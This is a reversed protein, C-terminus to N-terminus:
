NSYHLTGVTAALTWPKTCTPNEVGRRGSGDASALHFLQNNTRKGISSPRGSCSIIAACISINIGDAGSACFWM